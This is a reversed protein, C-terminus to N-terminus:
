SKAVKQTGTLKVSDIVMDSWGRDSEFLMKDAAKKAYQWNDCDAVVDGDLVPLCAFNLCAAHLLFIALFHQLVCFHCSVYRLFRAEINGFPQLAM